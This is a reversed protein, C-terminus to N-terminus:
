MCRCEGFQRCPPRRVPKGDGYFIHFPGSIYYTYM